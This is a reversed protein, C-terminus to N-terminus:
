TEVKWETVANADDLAAAGILREEISRGRRIHM